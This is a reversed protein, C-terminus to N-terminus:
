KSIFQQVRHEEDRFCDEVYKYFSESYDCGEPIENNVNSIETNAHNKLKHYCDVLEDINNKQLKNKDYHNLLITINSNYKNIIRKINEECYMIDEEGFESYESESDSASVSESEENDNSSESDENDSSSEYEPDDEYEVHNSKIDNTDYMEDQDTMESSNTSSSNYDDYESELEDLENEGNNDDSYELESKSPNMGALEEIQKVVDDEMDDLQKIEKELRNAEDDLDNTNEDGHINKDRLEKYIKDLEKKKLIRLDQINTLNDGADFLAKEITENRTNQM